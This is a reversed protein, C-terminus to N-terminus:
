IDIQRMVVPYCKGTDTCGRYTLTLQRSKLDSLQVAITIRDRYILQGDQHPEGPQLFRFAPANDPESINFYQKYLYHGDALEWDLILTGQAYRYSLFFAQEPPLFEPQALSLAQEDALQRAPQKDTNALACHSLLLLASMLPPLKAM